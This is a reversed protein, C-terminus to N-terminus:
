RACDNIRKLMKVCLCVYIYTLPFMRFPIGRCPHVCLRQLSSLNMVATTFSRPTKYARWCDITSIICPIRHPLQPAQFPFSCVRKRNDIERLARESTTSKTGARLPSPVLGVQCAPKKKADALLNWLPQKHRQTNNIHSAIPQCFELYLSSQCEVLNNQGVATCIINANNNRKQKSTRISFNM